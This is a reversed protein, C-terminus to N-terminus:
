KNSTYWKHTESKQIHELDSLDFLYCISRKQMSVWISLDENFDEKETDSRVPKEVKSWLIEIVGHESDHKILVM